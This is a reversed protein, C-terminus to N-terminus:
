IEQLREQKFALSGQGSIRGSTQECTGPIREYSEKQGSIGTIFCFYNYFCTVVLFM